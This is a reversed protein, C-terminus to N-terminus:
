YRYDIGTLSALNSAKPYDSAKPVVYTDFGAEAPWQMQWSDSHGVWRPVARRGLHGRSTPPCEAGLGRLECRRERRRHRRAGLDPDLRLVPRCRRRLPARQGGRGGEGHGWRLSPLMRPLRSPGGGRCGSTPWRPTTKFSSPHLRGGLHVLLDRGRRHSPHVGLPHLRRLRFVVPRGGGCVALTRRATMDGAAVSEMAM